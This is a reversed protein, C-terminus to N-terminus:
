QTFPDEQQEQEDVFSEAFSDAKQRHMEARVRGAEKTEPYKSVLSDGLREKVNVGKRPDKYKRYIGEARERRSEFLRDIAVQAQAPSWGISGLEERDKPQKGTLRAILERLWGNSESSTGFEINSREIAWVMEIMTWSSVRDMELKEFQQIFSDDKLELISLLLKEEFERGQGLASLQQTRYYGDIEKVIENWQRIADNESDFISDVKREFLGMTARHLLSEASAREALSSEHLMPLLNEVIIERRNGWGEDVHFISQELARTRMPGRLQAIQRVYKKITTFRFKGGSTEAIDKMAPITAEVVLSITNIPVITRQRAHRKVIQYTKPRDDNMESVFAGDSLMFIADPKMSIALELALRPDTGPGMDVSELWSHFRNRNETTAPIMEFEQEGTRELSREGFMPITNHAFMVVFFEQHPQLSEIANLLESKAVDYRNFMEQSVFNRSGYEMSTSRDVVFVFRRGSAKTGFFTASKGDGQARSNNLPSGVLKDRTPENLDLANKESEEKELVEDLLDNLPADAVIENDFVVPNVDFADLLEEDPAAPAAAADLFLTSDGIGSRVVLLSLFLLLLTHLFLSILFSSNKKLGKRTLLDRFRFPEDERESIEIGPQKLRKAKPIRKRQLKSVKRTAPTPLAQQLQSGLTESLADDWIQESQTDIEAVIEDEVVAISDPPITAAQVSVAKVPKPKAIQDTDLSEFFESAVALHDQDLQSQQVKLPVVSPLRLEGSGKRTSDSQTM